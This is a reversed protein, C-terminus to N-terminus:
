QFRFSFLDADKMFIRMRIAEGSIESVDSKGQWTVTREIEDGIIEDCERLYFGPIPMGDRDQLEICIGGAASTSYNVQLKKGNFRFPKTILEGGKFSANVSVFGDMRLTMRELYQSPQGYNRQIYFSMETPSTPVVGYACYNTRSSWNELGLGPRVFSERFTRDYHNRGRSTLLVTDSCDRSYQKDGGLKNFQEATLVQRGPMFRAATAIYIHPARFYPHTQNTYLHEQLPKGFDMEVPETWHIFDKSTTRSITRYGKYEGKTWTRFYCVYCNEAQSWFSVNQSDFAGKTIVAEERLKNWHIGDESIFPVLGSKGTGALAKYKEHTAVGLKTDLFPSFNHSYPAMDKLIANNNKTSNVEFLGVNPKIWHVGDESQAYCTVEINSGDKGAQPLGRYYMRYVDDDHIVTVYGCYRGEWPKDFRLAIGASVPKQMRLETGAMRDILSHDVFLERHNGIDIISDSASWAAISLLCLFQCLVFFTTKSRKM